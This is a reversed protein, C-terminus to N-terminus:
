FSRRFSCPSRIPKIQPGPYLRNFFYSKHRCLHTPHGHNPSRAHSLHLHHSVSITIWPRSHSCSFPSPSTCIISPFAARPSYTPLDFSLVCSVDVFDVGWTVGYEKDGGQIDSNQALLLLAWTLSLSSTDSGAFLFTNINHLIDDDSIRQDTPLDSAMNAKVAFFYHQLPDFTPHRKTWECLLTLLDKGDYAVGIEKGEKIRRKKDQILQGAVRNIVIHSKKM